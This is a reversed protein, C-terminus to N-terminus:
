KYLGNEEIYHKVEKPVDFSIDQHHKIKERISTSSIESPKIKLRFIKGHTFELLDTQITTLHTELFKKLLPNLERAAHPRDVIILHAYNVIEHWHYWHDFQQFADTGLIWCLSYSPFEQRLSILTELTYSPTERNIEREDISFHDYGKIALKLMTLRQIETAHSKEKLVQKKCPIFRVEDLKLKDIAQSAIYLHGNHIPDFVGGLLGIVKKTM